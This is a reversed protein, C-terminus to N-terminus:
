RALDFVSDARVWGSSSEVGAVRVWGPLADLRRVSTGPPLTELTTADGRPESALAAGSKEVVLWLDARERELARLWPVLGLLAGLGCLIALRRWAATGRLAELALVAGFLLIAGLAIWSAEAVTWADLVRRLTAALDGRDYPEFGAERRAFELNALADADRPALRVAASYWGVAEGMAGSRAAANGLDYLLAKRDVVDDARADLAALWHARARAWDGARYAAVGAEFSARGSASDTGRAGALAATALCVGLLVLWRWM